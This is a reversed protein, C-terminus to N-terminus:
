RPLIDKEKAALMEDIKKIFEDTLKQIVDSQTHHEDKSIDGDKELKKYHDMGDRRINRVSVRASEAYKAAIKALEARRESSLEPIPVRVTQGDAAPNLGLGAAGIAKEVAKVMSKDWVQVMLLRPEPISINALQNLPTMSGYADVIVTDLLNASARGTRLGSFEQALTKLSGEMRKRLGTIENDQM